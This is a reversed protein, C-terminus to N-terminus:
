RKFVKKIQAWMWEMELNAAVFPIKTKIPTREQHHCLKGNFTYTYTIFLIQASLEVAKALILKQM